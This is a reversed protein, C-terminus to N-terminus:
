DGPMWTGDEVAAIAEDLEGATEKVLRPRGEDLPVADYRGGDAFERFLIMWRPRKRRLADLDEQGRRLGTPDSM